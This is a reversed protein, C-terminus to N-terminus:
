KVLQSNNSKVTLSDFFVRTKPLATYATQVHSLNGLGILQVKGGLQLMHHYANVAEKPSVDRDKLGYYMRFLADPKWDFTQNEALKENFWDPNGFKLDNLIEKTYLSDATKPLRRIIQKYTYNGNFIRPVVTDYPSVLLSRLPQNYIHCYSNALYGLYFNSNNEIAFPISIEKLNYAGVISSSAVLHLGNIPHQEIYRHVAATAHGGQSIGILFLNNIKNGTLLTCIESGLKLFDVVANCTTEAHLYTHVENSVGFGIYDPILCLYGGGAFIASIGLGEDQSPNSPSNLRESNTGHQYSVVGKIRKIRPIALLGSVLIRKDKEDKTFYSVRYLEIGSSIDIREPAKLKKIFYKIVPEPYIGKSEFKISKLYPSAHVLKGVRIRSICGNLLILLSLLTLLKINM